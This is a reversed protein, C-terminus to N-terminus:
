QTDIKSFEKIKDSVISDLFVAVEDVDKIEGFLALSNDNRLTFEYDKLLMEGNKSKVKCTHKIILGQFEEPINNLKNFEESLIKLKPKMLYDMVNAAKEAYYDADKGGKKSESIYWRYDYLNKQLQQASKYVRTNFLINNSLLPAYLTQMPHYSDPNELSSAMFDALRQDISSAIENQMREQAEAIIQEKTKTSCSTVVLLVLM